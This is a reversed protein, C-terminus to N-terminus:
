PETSMTTRDDRMALSQEKRQAKCKDAIKGMYSLKPQLKLPTRDYVIEVSRELYPKANRPIGFLFFSSLALGFYSIWLTWDAKPVSIKVILGWYPGHIASFSYSSITDAKLYSVFRFLSLPLYLLVLTMVTFILRFFDAPSIGTRM